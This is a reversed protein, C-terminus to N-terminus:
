ILKNEQYHLKENGLITRYCLVKQKVDKGGNCLIECRVLHWLHFGKATVEM